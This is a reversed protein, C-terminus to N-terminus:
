RNVGAGLHGSLDDCNILHGLFLRANVVQRRLSLTVSALEGRHGLKM